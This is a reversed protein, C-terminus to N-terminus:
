PESRQSAIKQWDQGAYTICVIRVTRKEDDATFCIVGKEASPLARLGPVIDPRPSGIHPYDSLSGISRELEDIKSNAKDYGAYEGIFRAIDFLDRNVLPHRDIAYRKM